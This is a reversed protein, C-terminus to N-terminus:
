NENVPFTVAWALHDERTSDSREEVLIQSRTSIWSCSWEEHGMPFGAQRPSGIESAVAVCTERISLGVREPLAVCGVLIEVLQAVRHDANTSGTVVSFDVEFAKTSKGRQAAQFAIDGVVTLGGFAFSKSIIRSTSNEERGRLPM